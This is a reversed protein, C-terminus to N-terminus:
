ITKPTFRTFFVCLVGSCSGVSACTGRSSPEVALVRGGVYATPMARTAAAALWGAVEVGGELQMLAAAEGVGVDRMGLERQWAVPACVCVCGNRHIQDRYVVRDFSTLWDDVVGYDVM